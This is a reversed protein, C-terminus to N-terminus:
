VSLANMLNTPNGYGTDAYKSNRVVPNFSKCAENYGVYPYADETTIGNAATYSFAWDMLGGGCGLNGYSGSCDVL